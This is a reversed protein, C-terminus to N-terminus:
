NNQYRNGNGHHRGQGQHNKQGGQGCGQRFGLGRGLEPAIEKASLRFDIRKDRLQKQLDTIEESLKGLKSRDPSSTEMLM